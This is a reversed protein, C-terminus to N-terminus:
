NSSFVRQHSDHKSLPVGVSTFSLFSKQTALRQDALFSGIMLVRKRLGAMRWFHIKGRSGAIGGASIPPKPERRNTTM